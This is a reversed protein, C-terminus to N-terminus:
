VAQAASRTIWIPSTWAQEDHQGQPSMFFRNAGEDYLLRNDGDLNADAQQRVLIIARYFASQGPALSEDVCRLAIEDQPNNLTAVVENGKAIAIHTVASGPEAIAALDLIPVGSVTLEDGM